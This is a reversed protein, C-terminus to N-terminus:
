FDPFKNKPMNESKDFAKRQAIKINGRPFSFFQWIFIEGRISNQVHVRSCSSLRVSNSLGQIKATMLLLIQYM